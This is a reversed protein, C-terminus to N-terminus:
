KDSLCSRLTTIPMILVTQRNVRLKSYLVPLLAHCQHLLAVTTQKQELILMLDCHGQCKHFLTTAYM